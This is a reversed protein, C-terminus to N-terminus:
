PAQTGVVEVDVRRDPQLCAILKETRREGPCDERTTVPASGDAGRATIKDAPIGSEVLYAKVAEARRTSLKVNYEHSGIRDTYGTVTIVDFRTGRLEAAFADLKQKGRPRVADKAFDFLEDSSFSVKRRMPPPPPPPPPPPTVVPEPVAAAVVPAPAPAYAAQPPAARGFRFVLGVSYLDIDGRNGVADDIRYREAELRMGVTQTFNYQAGLGFKYNPEAKQPAPDLVAVAGTGAFSDHAVAYVLGARAFLSFNDGLPVMGVADFNAGRVKIDGQLTGAPMTTATFGFQGLDFYGAELALYPNFEYGGYVKFGFHRNDNNIGTNTLGAGLLDGAIRPDDITARAQGANFGGYWGADDASAPAISLLTYAAFCGMGAIRAIKM